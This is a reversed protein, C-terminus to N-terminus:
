SLAGNALVIEYEPAVGGESASFCDSHNFLQCVFADTGRQEALHKRRQPAPAKAQIADPYFPTFYHIFSDYLFLLRVVPANATADMRPHHRLSPLAKYESACASSIVAPLTEATRIEYAV